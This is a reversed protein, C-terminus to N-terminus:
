AVALEQSPVSIPTKWEAYTHQPTNHGWRVFVQESKEFRRIHNVLTNYCVGFLKAMEGLSYSGHFELRSAIANALGKRQAEAKWLPFESSTIVKQLKFDNEQARVCALIYKIEHHHEPSVDRPNNRNDQDLNVQHLFQLKKALTLKTVEKKAFGYVFRKARFIDHLLSNVLTEVASLSLIVEPKESVNSNKAMTYTLVYM